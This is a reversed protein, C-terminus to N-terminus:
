ETQADMKKVKAYQGNDTKMKWQGNSFNFHDIEYNVQMQTGKFVGFQFYTPKLIYSQFKNHETNDKAMVKGRQELIGAVHVQMYDNEGTKWLFVLNAHPNKSISKALNSKPSFALMFGNKTFGRVYMYRVEPLGDPSITALAAKHMMADNNSQANAQWTQFQVYPDKDTQLQSAFGMGFPLLLMVLLIAKKINIM